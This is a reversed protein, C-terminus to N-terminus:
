GQWNDFVAVVKFSESDLHALEKPLARRLYQRQRRAPGETPERLQWEAEVARRLADQWTRGPQDFGTRVAERYIMIVTERSEGDIMFRWLPYKALVVQQLARILIPNLLKIDPLEVRMTRDLREGEGVCWKFYGNAEEDSFGSPRGHRELTAYTADRVRIF